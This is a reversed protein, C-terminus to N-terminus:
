NIISNTKIINQASEPSCIASKSPSFHLEPRGCGSTSFSSFSSGSSSKPAESPTPNNSFQMLEHFFMQALQFELPLDHLHPCSSNLCTKNNKQFRCFSEHSYECSYRGYKCQEKYKCPTNLRFIPPGYQKFKFIEKELHQLLDHQSLSLHQSM